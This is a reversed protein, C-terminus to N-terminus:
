LSVAPPYQASAMEMSTSPHCDEGSSLLEDIKAQLDNEQLSALQKVFPKLPTAQPGNDIM